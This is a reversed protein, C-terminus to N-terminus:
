RFRQESLKFKSSTFWYLITIKKQEICFCAIIKKNEKAVLIHVESNTILAKLENINSREGSVIETEKTWGYEGRYATNILQSLESAENLNPLELKYKM